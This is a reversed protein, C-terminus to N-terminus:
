LRSELKILKYSLETLCERWCLAYVFFKCAMGLLPGADNYVTNHIGYINRESGSGFIQLGSNRVRGSGSGVQLNKNVNIIKLYTPYRYFSM